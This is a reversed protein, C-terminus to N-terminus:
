YQEYLNIKQIRRFFVLVDKENILDQLYNRILLTDSFIKLTDTLFCFDEDKGPPSWYPFCLYKEIIEGMADLNLKSYTANMEAFDKADLDVNQFKNHVMTEIRRNLQNLDLLYKPLECKKYSNRRIGKLKSLNRLSWLEIPLRGSCFQLTPKYPVQENRVYPQPCPAQICFIRNLTYNDKEHPPPEQYIKNPKLLGKPIPLKNEALYHYETLLDIIDFSRSDILMLRNLEKAIRDELSGSSVFIRGISKNLLYENIEPHIEKRENLLELSKSLLSM